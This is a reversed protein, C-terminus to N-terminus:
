SGLRSSYKEWGGSKRFFLNVFFESVYLVRAKPDVNKIDWGALKLRNGKGVQVINQSCIAIITHRAPQKCICTLSHM